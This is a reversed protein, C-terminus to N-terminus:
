NVLQECYTPGASSPRGLGDRRPCYRLDNETEYERIQTRESVMM